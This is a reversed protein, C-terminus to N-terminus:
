RTFGDIPTTFAPNFGAIAKKAAQDPNGFVMFSVTKQVEGLAKGFKPVVHNIHAVMADSSKYLEVVTFTKGDAHMNWEYMLTGPEEAAAAVIEKVLKKFNEMQGPLVEATYNTAIYGSKEGQQPAQAYAPVALAGVVFLSLLTKRM